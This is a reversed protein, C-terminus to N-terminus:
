IVRRLRVLPTMKQWLGKLLSDQIAADLREPNRKFFGEIGSPIAYTFITRKWVSSGIFIEETHIGVYEDGERSIQIKIPRVEITRQSV